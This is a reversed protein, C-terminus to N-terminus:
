SRGPRPGRPRASARLALIAVGAGVFGARVVKKMLEVLVGLGGDLRLARFLLYAGGEATGAQFPVFPSLWAVIQGNVIMLFPVLPHVAGGIALILVWNEFSAGSRSLASLAAALAARRPARAWVRVDAAMADVFGQAREVREASVRLRRLLAFPWRWPGTRLLLPLGLAFLLFLGSTAWLLPRLPGALGMVSPAVGAVIAIHLCSAEYWLVNQLLIAAALEPRSVREALLTYKTVEGLATQTSLNIAHGAVQARLCALWLGPRAPQATGLALILADLALVAAHIATAALLGWGAGRLALWLRDRDLQLVLVVLGAGGVLLFFLSWRRSATV